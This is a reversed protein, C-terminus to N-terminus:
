NTLAFSQFFHWFVAIVPGPGRPRISQREVAANLIYEETCTRGTYQQVKEKPHISFLKGLIDLFGTDGRRVRKGRM